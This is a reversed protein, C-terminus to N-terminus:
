RDENRQNCTDCWDNDLDSEPFWNRCVVCQVNVPEIDREKYCDEDYYDGTTEDYITDSANQNLSRGCNSCEVPRCSQISDTM